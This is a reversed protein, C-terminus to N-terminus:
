KAQGMWDLVRERSSFDLDEYDVENLYIIGDIYEVRVREFSQADNFDTEGSMISPTEMIINGNDDFEVISTHFFIAPVGSGSMWFDCYKVSNNEYFYISEGMFNGASFETDVISNWLEDNINDNNNTCGFLLIIAFIMIVIRTRKM